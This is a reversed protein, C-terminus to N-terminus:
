ILISISPKCLACAFVNWYPAFLELSNKNKEKTEYTTTDIIFILTSIMKTEFHPVFLICKRGM